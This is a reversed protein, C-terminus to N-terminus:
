PFQILVNIFLHKREDVILTTVGRTINM